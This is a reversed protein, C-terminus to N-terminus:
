SSSGSTQKLKSQHHVQRKTRSRLETGMNQLVTRTKSVCLNITGKSVCHLHKRRQPGASPPKAHGAPFIIDLGERCEATRNGLRSAVIGQEVPNKALLVSARPNTTRLRSDAGVEAPDEILRQRVSSRRYSILMKAM